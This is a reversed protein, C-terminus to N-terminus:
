KVLYTKSMGGIRRYKYAQALASCSMRLAAGLTKREPYAVRLRYGDREIADLIFEFRAIYAYGAIRCRANEVQMLYNKGAKFYERALSVRNRVWKQYPDSYLDHPSIGHTELFEGPINFYGNDIDEYSDRLMHTIHAGTAALYREESRPALCRQGIFHHMAETVASALQRAYDNLANRTIIMGKRSADFSMVAMMNRLYTKLGSPGGTDGRILDVLISEEMTVKDPYDGRFCLDMLVTQRKIFETRESPHMNTQDLQDDVWRFYAYARFADPILDRDVLLCITYYTQKSAAKTIEAAITSNM